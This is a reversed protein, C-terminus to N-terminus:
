QKLKQMLVMMLILVQQYVFNRLHIKSVQAYVKKLLSWLNM